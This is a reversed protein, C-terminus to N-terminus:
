EQCRRARATGGDGEGAAGAGVIPSIGFAPARMDRARMLM